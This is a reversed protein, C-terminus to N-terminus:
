NMAAIGANLSTAYAVWVLYPVLLWAAARSVPWARWITMAIAILLAVIVILGTLPAHMGFFVPTWIANFALQLAFWGLAAGRQVSPAAQWLLWLAIGMLVYLITWVVPFVAPPPTWAPKNLSAYWTPIESATVISGLAGIGLCLAICLILRLISM